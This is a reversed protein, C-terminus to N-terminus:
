LILKNALGLVVRVGQLLDDTKISENFTHAQEIEGPGFTVAPIRADNIFNRVDTSYPTGWIEAKRGLVAEVEECLMRVPPLSAPIEASEYLRPAAVRYSFEPDSLAIESLMNDIEASVATATEDPNIRRDLVLSLSEPVVNNNTGASIKTMTCRAPGCEPHIRETLKEDYERIKKGFALFKDIPNIGTDPISCHAPKGAITVRFWALGKEAIGVRFDSPELVIGFGDTYGSEELLVKTGPEGAEEGMAFTLVLDGKLPFQSLQIVRAAELAVGLGGKMDCSGRGFIRDKHLAGSFPHDNWQSHDGEPVVDMHGNLILPPREGNGPLKALLQPRDASPRRIITSEFGWQDMVKQLYATVPAENGPPNVSPIRVLDQVMSVLRSADILANLQEKM